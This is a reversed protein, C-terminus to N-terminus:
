CTEQLANDYNQGMIDDINLGFSKISDIMSNFFSEGSTDNVKLFGLFFEEFKGSGM